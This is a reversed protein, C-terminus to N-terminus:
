MSTTRRRRGDIRNRTEIVSIVKNKEQEALNLEMLAEVYEEEVKLKQREAEMLGNHCRSLRELATKYCALVERRAGHLRRLMQEQTEIVVQKELLNLIRKHVHMNNSMEAEVAVRSRRHIQKLEKLTFGEVDASLKCLTIMAERDM